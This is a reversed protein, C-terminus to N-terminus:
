QSRHASDMDTDRHRGLLLVSPGNTTAAAEPRHTLLKTVANHLKRPPEIKNIKNSGDLTVSSMLKENTQAYIHFNRRGNNTTDFILYVYCTLTVPFDM